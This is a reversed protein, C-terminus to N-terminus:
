DLDELSARCTDVTQQQSSEDIIKHLVAKVEEATFHHNREGLGATRVHAMRTYKNLAANGLGAMKKLALVTYMTGAGAPPPPPPPPNDDPLGTVAMELDALAADADEFLKNERQKEIPRKERLARAFITLPHRNAHPCLLQAQPIVVAILDAFETGLHHYAGGRSSPKKKQLKRLTAFNARVAKLNAWISHRTAVVAMEM